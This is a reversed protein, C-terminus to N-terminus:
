HVFQMHLWPESNYKPYKIIFLYIIKCKKHGKSSIQLSSILVFERMYVVSIICETKLNLVPFRSKVPVGGMPSSAVSGGFGMTSDSSTSMYFHYHVKNQLEKWTM